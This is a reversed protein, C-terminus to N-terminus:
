DNSTFSTLIRKVFDTGTGGQGHCIGCPSAQFQAQAQVNLPCHSGEGQYPFILTFPSHAFAQFPINGLMRCLLVLIGQTSGVSMRRGTLLGTDTVLVM